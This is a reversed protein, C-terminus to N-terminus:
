LKVKKKIEDIKKLEVSLINRKAKELDILESGAFEKRGFLLKDSYLCLTFLEFKNSLHKDDIYLKNNDLYITSETDDLTSFYIPQSGSYNELIYEINVEYFNFTQDIQTETKEIDWKFIIDSGELSAYINNNRTDVPFVAFYKQVKTKPPILLPLYLNHREISEIKNLTLSKDNILLHKLGENSLPEQTQNGYNIIINKDFRKSTGTTNDIEIRFTSLYKKEFAYPNIYDFIAISTGSGNTEDDFYFIIQNELENYEEQSIKDEDLLWDLGELLFEVDSKVKIRKQKKLFYSIRSKDFFSYNLKGNLSQEKFFEMNLYDPSIPTIKIKLGDYVIEDVVPNYRLSINFGTEQVEVKKIKKQGFIPIVLIVLISIFFVRKM